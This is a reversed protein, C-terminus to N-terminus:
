RAEEYDHPSVAVTATADEGYWAPQDGSHDITHQAEALLLPALSSVVRECDMRAREVTWFHPGQLRTMDDLFVRWTWEEDNVRCLSLDYHFGLEAPQCYHGNIDWDFTM